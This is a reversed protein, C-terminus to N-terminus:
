AIIAKLAARIGSAAGAVTAKNISSLAPVAAIAKYGSWQVVQQQYEASAGTFFWGLVDMQNSRCFAATLLSHNISGPYERNVLIVKADLLKIFDAVFLKEQLPTLLGENGEIVLIKGPHNSQIDQSAQFLKLLEIEVGERSAATHPSATAKFKYLEPHIRTINNSILDAVKEKDTGSEVGAQVPKWYDAELAEAIFASVFTKGVETGIGTIFIPQNM